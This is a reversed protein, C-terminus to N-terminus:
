KLKTAWRTPKSVLIKLSRCNAPVSQTTSDSNHKYNLIGVAYFFQSCRNTTLLFMFLFHLHRINFSVNSIHLELFSVTVFLHCEPKKRKTYQLVTITIFYLYDITCNFSYRCVLTNTKFIYKKTPKLCNM